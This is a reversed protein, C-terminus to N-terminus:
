WNLGEQNAYAEVADKAEKLGCGTQTRVEKIADIKRGRRVFDQATPGVEIGCFRNDPQSLRRMTERSTQDFVLLDRADRAAVYVEHAGTFGKRAMEHSGQLVTNIARWLAQSDVDNLDEPSAIKTM